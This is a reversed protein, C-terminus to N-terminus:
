EPFEPVFPRTSGSLPHRGRYGKKMPLRILTKVLPGMDRYDRSERTVVRIGSYPNVDTRRENGKINRVYDFSLLKFVTHIM